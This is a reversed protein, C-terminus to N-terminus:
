IAVAVLVGLVLLISLLMLVGSLEPVETKDVEPINTTM